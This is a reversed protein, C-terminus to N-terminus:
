RFSAALLPVGVGVGICGFVSCVCVCVCIPVKHLVTVGCLWEWWSVVCGGGGGGGSWWVSAMSMVHWLCLCLCPSKRVEHLVTVGDPVKTTKLAPANGPALEDHSLHELASNVLVVAEEATMNGVMMGEILLQSLFDTLFRQVEDATLTELETLREQLGNTYSLTAGRLIPIQLTVNLTDHVLSV